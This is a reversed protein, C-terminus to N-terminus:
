FGHDAFFCEGSYPYEDTLYPEEDGEAREDHHSGEVKLTIESM